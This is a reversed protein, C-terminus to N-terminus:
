EKGRLEQEVRRIHDREKIIKRHDFEKKSKALGIEVKFRNNKEYMSVPVLTVSKGSTKGILSDIQAQHLLLKRTRQADYDRDSAQNYRPINANILFAEGNFVRIHSEGLDIRGARISKVEAGSLVIGAETHELIHYNHLAKKNVIKMAM